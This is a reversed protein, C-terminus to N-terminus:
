KDRKRRSVMRPLDARPGGDHELSELRLVWLPRRERLRLEACRLRRRRPAALPTRSPPPPSRPPRRGVFSHLASPILYPAFRPLPALSSPTARRVISRSPQNPPHCFPRFSRASRTPSRTLPWASETHTPCLMSHISLNVPPTATPTHFCSDPNPHQPSCHDRVYGPSQEQNHYLDSCDTTNVKDCKDSYWPGEPKFKVYWDSYAPDELTKRVSTYWPYAWMSGRYVWVTQGLSSSTSMKVQNQLVLEDMMQLHPTTHTLSHRLTTRSSTSRTCPAVCHLLTM